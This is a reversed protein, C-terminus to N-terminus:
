GAWVDELVNTLVTPIRGDITFIYGDQPIIQLTYRTNPTLYKGIYLLIEYVDGEQIYPSIQSAFLGIVAFPSDIGAAKMESLLNLVDVDRLPSSIASENLSISCGVVTGNVVTKTAIIYSGNYDNIASCTKQDSSNVSIVNVNGNYLFGYILYNGGQLIGYVATPVETGVKYALLDGYQTTLIYSIREFGIPKSGSMLRMVPMIASIAQVNIDLRKAQLDYQYGWVRTVEVGTSVRERAQAGVQLARQQLTQTTYIIVGAAIAATVIMAIFIILTTLGFQTRVM